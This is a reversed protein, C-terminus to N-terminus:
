CPDRGPQHTHGLGSQLCATNRATLPSPDFLRLAVRRTAAAIAGQDALAVRLLYHWHLADNEGLARRYSDAAEALRDQAHYAMGLGGWADARLAPVALGALNSEVNEHATRLTLTVSDAAQVTGRPADDGPLAVAPWPALSRGRCPM